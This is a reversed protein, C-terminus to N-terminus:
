TEVAPGFAQPDSNHRQEIPQPPQEDIRMASLTGSSGRSNATCSLVVSTTKATAPM